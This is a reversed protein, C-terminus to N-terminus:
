NLPVPRMVVFQGTEECYIESPIGNDLSSVIARYELGDPSVLTIGEGIEWQPSNGDRIVAWNLSSVPNAM